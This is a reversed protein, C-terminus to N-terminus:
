IPNSCETIILICTKYASIKMCPKSHTIEEELTIKDSKKLSISEWLKYKIGKFQTENGNKQYTAM